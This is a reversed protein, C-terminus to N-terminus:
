QLEEPLACGRAMLLTTDDGQLPGCFRRQARVLIRILADLPLHRAAALAQVLRDEGFEEGLRNRGETMGDSFVALADGPNLFTERVDCDWEPLIGIVTATSELREVTGCARLLVPPLHGCNAFSLRRTADDYEGLFLTAFRHSETWDFFLRNVSRLVHRLDGSNTAYHSRITAQLSAMLIAASVGKGAIDGLLIGLRSAGLPILDYFDGGVECAPHFFGGVELTQLRAPPTRLLRTQVARAAAHDEVPELVRPKTNLNSRQM